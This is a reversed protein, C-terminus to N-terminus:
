LRAAVIRIILIVTVLSKTGREVLDMLPKRTVFSKTGREVLDMLLERTVFSKKGREVLDMMLKRVLCHGLPVVPALAAAPEARPPREDWPKQLDSDYALKTAGRASSM